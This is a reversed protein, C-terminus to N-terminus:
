ESMTQSRLLATDKVKKILKSSSTNELVRFMSLVTICSIYQNFLFNSMFYYIIEAVLQKDTKYLLGITLQYLLLIISGQQNIELWVEHRVHCIIDHM